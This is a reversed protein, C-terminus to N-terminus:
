HANLFRERGSKGYKAKREVAPPTFVKQKPCFISRLAFYSNYM